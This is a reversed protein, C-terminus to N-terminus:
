ARDLESRTLELFRLYYIYVNRFPAVGFHSNHTAQRGPLGPAGGWAGVKQGVQGDETPPAIFSKLCLNLTLPPVSGVSM